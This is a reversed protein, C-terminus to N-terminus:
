LVVPASIMLVVMGMVLTNRFSGIIRSFIDRGMVDTGCLHEKSPPLSANSFDVFSGIHEPYPVLQKGFFALFIFTIVIVLGIVSIKNETFKFWNRRLAEL